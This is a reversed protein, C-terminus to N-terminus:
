IVSKICIQATHQSSKRLNRPFAFFFDNLISDIQKEFKEKLNLTLKPFKEFSRCCFISSTAKRFFEYKGTCRWKSVHGKEAM